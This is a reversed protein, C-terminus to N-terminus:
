FRVLPHGTFWDPHTAPLDVTGNGDFDGRAYDQINVSSGATLGNRGVPKVLRFDARFDRNRGWNWVFSLNPVPMRECPPAIMVRGDRLSVVRRPVGDCDVELWDGVSFGSLDGVYLREQDPPMDRNGRRSFLTRTLLPGNRFVPREFISNPNDGTARQYATFSSSKGPRGGRELWRFWHPEDSWIVNDDSSLPPGGPCGGLSPPVTVNYHFRSDGGTLVDGGFFTNNTFCLNLNTIGMGSHRLSCSIANQWHIGAWINNVIIGDRTEQCQWGQGVNLFVNSDLTLDRVDRYTQFGDPHRSDWNDFIYNRRVRIGRSRWSVLLADVTHLGSANEEILCDTSGSISIGYSNRMSLCHRLVSGTQGGFLIGFAAKQEPDLVCDHVVCNVVSNHGGAIFEIGTGAIRAIELGRLTVHSVNRGSFGGTRRVGDVNLTDLKLETALGLLLRGGTGQPIWVHEWPQPSSPGSKARTPLGNLFVAAPQWDLVTEIVRIAGAKDAGEDPSYRWGTIPDSGSVVVREGPASEILIPASASGSTNLHLQERYVGAHIRVTDGPQVQRLAAGITQFLRASDGLDASSLEPVGTRVILIAANTVGTASTLCVVLGVALGSLGPHRRLLSSDRM